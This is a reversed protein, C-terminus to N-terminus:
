AGADWFSRTKGALTSRPFRIGAAPLPSSYMFSLLYVEFSESSPTHQVSSNPKNQVKDMTKYTSSLVLLLTIMESSAAIWQATLTSSDSVEKM